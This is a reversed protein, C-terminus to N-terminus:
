FEMKDKREMVMLRDTIEVVHKFIAVSLRIQRKERSEHLMGADPHHEM